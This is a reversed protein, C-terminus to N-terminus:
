VSAWTREAEPTAFEDAAEAVAQAAAGPEVSPCAPRINRQTKTSELMNPALEEQISSAGAAVAVQPVLPVAVGFSQTRYRELPSRMRRVPYMHLCCPAVLPAMSREETSSRRTCHRPALRRRYCPLAAVVASRHLTDREERLASSAAMAVLAALSAQWSPAMALATADSRAVAPAVSMAHAVVAVAALQREWPTTRDWVQPAAARSEAVRRAVPMHSPGM